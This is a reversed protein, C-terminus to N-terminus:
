CHQMWYSVFNEMFDHKMIDKNNEIDKLDQKLFEVLRNRM